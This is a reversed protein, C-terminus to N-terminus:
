WRFVLGQATATVGEGRSRHPRFFLEDVSWALLLGAGTGVVDWAFDRWSPDGYGAMDALEKAAGLALSFGAGAALREGTGDWALSGAAYGGAALAASVGFHLMKDRGLWPDPDSARAATPEFIVCALIAISAVLRVMPVVNRRGDM